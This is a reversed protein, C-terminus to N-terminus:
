LAWTTTRDIARDSWQRQTEFGLFARLEEFTIEINWRAIFLQITQVASLTADTCFLGTPHLLPLPASM